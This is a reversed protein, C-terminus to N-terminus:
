AICALFLEKDPVDSSSIRGKLRYIRNYIYQKEKGTITAITTASLGSSVYCFLRIDDEKLKPFESRFKSMVGDHNTDLLRELGSSDNRLDSIISNVEKLIKPQLNDTGEYIYYQECLRQLADLREISLHKEPGAKKEKKAAEAKQSLDTIKSRLDEAIGILRENESQEESLLKESRLKSNRYVFWAAAVYLLFVLVLIWTRMKANSAKTKSIVAQERLFDNQSSLASQRVAKKLSKESLQVVEELAKLAGTQDGSKLLIQYERHKVKSLASEDTFPGVTAKKLWKLSEPANGVLSYAYALNARDVANLQYKWQNTARAILELALTPNGEGELCLDAYSTMSAACLLSDKVNSAYYIVSKYIKEATKSDGVFAYEQGARLLAANMYSSDGAEKFAVVAENLSKIAEIPDMTSSYLQAMELSIKGKLSTLSLQEACDLAKSFAVAANEYSGSVVYAKGLFYCSKGLEETFGHKEFWASAQSLTKVDLVPDKDVGNLAEAYLLSFLSKERGEKLSSVDISDLVSLAKEPEADVYGNIESLM